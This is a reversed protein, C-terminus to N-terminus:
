TTLFDRNVNMALLVTSFPTIPSKVDYPHLQKPDWVNQGDLGKFFCFNECEICICFLRVPSLSFTKIINSYM